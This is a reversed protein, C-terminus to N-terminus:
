SFSPRDGHVIYFLFLLLPEWTSGLGGAHGASSEPSGGPPALPSAGARLAPSWPVRNWGQAPFIGPPPCPLGSWYEQRSFGMSLPAQRAGTRLTTFLWIRSFCSLLCVSCRNFFNFNFGEWLSFRLNWQHIRGLIWPFYILGVCIRGSFQFPRVIGRSINHPWFTVCFWFTVNCFAVALIGWSCLLSLM